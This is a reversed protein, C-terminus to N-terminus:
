GRAKGRGRRARSGFKFKMDDSDDESDSGHVVTVPLTKQRKPPNTTASTTAPRKGKAKASLPPNQTARQTQTQTQTRSQRQTQSIRQTTDPEDDQEADRADSDEAAAARRDDARTRRPTDIDVDHDLIEAAEHQLRATTPSTSPPEHEDDNDFEDDLDDEDSIVRAKSRSKMTTGGSARQTQSQTRQSRAEERRKRERELEKEEQSKEWYQEGIGFKRRKIEVLPVIVKSAHGRRQPAEGIRRFGKFNKRGNWKPDWDPGHEGNRIQQKKTKDRLPLDMSLVEVLHAPGTTELDEDRRRAEEQRRAAEEEEERQLGLAKRVDLEREKKKMKTPPTISEVKAAVNSKRNVQAEALKRRKFATAAPLLDDIEDAFNDEPEETAPRPRKKSSTGPEEKVQSTYDGNNNLVDNESVPPEELISNEEFDVIADPDFDDDFKNNKTQTFRPRRYPRPAPEDPDSVQSVNASVDQPPATETPPKEKASSVPASQRSRVNSTSQSPLSQAIASPQNSVLSNAASPPPAIRGETTSEFPIAQKLLGAENALIADLFESQDIARQDMKLAVENILSNTWEQVDDKGTWRVLIVGGSEQSRFGEDDKKGSAHRLFQILSDASSEGNIVKFLIAKGHGSTVVPLLTDYQSQDGFVFVYGEFINPRTPDPRYSEVPRLTPEKGPPPLHENPDPWSYDFDLELPCLNEEQSLHTPTTAYELADIYSESVIYKATILAQLGKATNRKNAIVHTTHGSFFDSTAKIDFAEVRAQKLKLLGSKIEKKLLNFTLVCPEWRIIIENLQTGPRVSNEESKLEKSSNKILEGNVSTGSKSNQDEIRIKTRAHIQAVDGSRVPDVYIIFHKRSVSKHDIAFRVGERKVRGFLYKQGPKLWMRKGQLFDGNSELIWM